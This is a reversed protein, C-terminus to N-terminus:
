SPEAAQIGLRAVTAGLEELRVRVERPRAGESPGVTGRLELENMLRGAQASGVRLKRQLM